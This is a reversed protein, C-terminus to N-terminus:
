QTNAIKPDLKIAIARYKESNAIDNLYRYANSLNLNANANKPDLNLAETFYSVAKAHNGSIGYLVGLLRLTEQDKNNLQYARLLMQESKVLNNEKEGAQRGLDRYAVSANNIVDKIGPDIKLAQEYVLIASDLKGKYFYSNGLLLYANKYLPHVKLAEQLYHVSKSLMAQKKVPDKEKESATGYSGGAANLVKASRTSVNVDTTFLTFDDHWVFNRSITKASFLLMFVSCIIAVTKGKPLFKYILYPILICFGLSPMFLFRESMNTGIPFVINSVISITILFFLICFSIVRDKNYYYFAAVIMVIYLLLSAITKVDVFSMIPIHRPYYDHTLPHPFFLLAIYKGLTYTITSFKEAFSFPMYKGNILKVYPNNMLELESNGADLGLVATRMILFLAAAGIVPMMKGISELVNKNYFFMLILPIVALFTIANEKSLLAVFFSLFAFLGYKKSDVELAKITFYTALVAGMMSMIEDRGKINAVAETHIPHSMYLGVAALIVWIFHEKFDSRFHFIKQLLMFIFVGLLGYMAANMLHGFFPNKGFFQYGIAFMIPTFPRYRGGSVLNAKGEEKFFGFFTDKKLLGPIGAFGKTTYMNDYIVIADDQTYEHGLTNAYLLFGFLFIAWKAWKMSTPLSHNAMAQPEPTTNVQLEPKSKKKAM